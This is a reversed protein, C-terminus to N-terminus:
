SSLSENSPIKSLGKLEDISAAMWSPMIQVSLRIPEDSQQSTVQKEDEQCHCEKEVAEDEEPSNVAATRGRQPEVSRRWLEEGNRMIHSSGNDDDSFRPVFSSGTIEFSCRDHFRSYKEDSDEEDSFDPREDSYIDHRVLIFPPMKEEEWDTVPLIRMHKDEKKWIVPHRKGLLERTYGRARANQELDAKRGLRVSIVAGQMCDGLVTLQAHFTAM